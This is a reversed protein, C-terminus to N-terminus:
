IVSKDLTFIERSLHCKLANNEHNQMKGCKLFTKSFDKLTQHMDSQLAINYYVNEAYLFLM